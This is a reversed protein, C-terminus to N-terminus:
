GASREPPILFRGEAIKQAADLSVAIDQCAKQVDLVSENVERSISKLNEV